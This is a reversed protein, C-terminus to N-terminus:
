VERVREPSPTLLSVYEDRKLRSPFCDDCCYLSQAFVFHSPQGGSCLECVALAADFGLAKLVHLVGAEERRVVRWLEPDPAGELTMARLVKLIQVGGALVGSTLADAVHFSHTKALRVRAINGPELHGSLKSIIKRGSTVKATVKGLLETFLTVQLDAEGAPEKDLVIAETFYERM